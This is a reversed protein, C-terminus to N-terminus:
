APRRVLQQVLLGITWWCPPVKNLKKGAAPGPSVTTRALPRPRYHAEEGQTLPELTIAAKSLTLPTTSGPPAIELLRHPPSTDLHELHELHGMPHELRGRAQPAPPSLITIMM